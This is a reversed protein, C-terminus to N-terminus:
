DIPLVVFKSASNSHFPSQKADDGEVNSIFHLSVWSPYGQKCERPVLVAAVDKKAVDDNEERAAATM